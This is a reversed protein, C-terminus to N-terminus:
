TSTLCPLGAKNSTSNINQGKEPLRQVDRKGVQSEQASGCSCLCLGIGWGLVQIQIRTLGGQTCLDRVWLEKCHMTYVGQQM